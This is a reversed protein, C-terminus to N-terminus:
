KFFKSNKWANMMTTKDADNNYNINVGFDYGNMLRSYMVQHLLIKGNPDFVTIYFTIFDLGQIKEKGSATDTKIGQDTFTRYILETVAKNSQMYEGPFEEKFPESTSQFINFQDKQFSILHKLEKAEILTGTSEEILDRGKDTMKESKDKSTVEWGDPIKISWGIEQSEYVVGRLKGEDVQSNPDLQQCSFIASCLIILVILNKM